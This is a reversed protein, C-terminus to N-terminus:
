YIVDAQNRSKNPNSSSSLRRVAAGTYALKVYVSGQNYQAALLVRCWAPFSVMNDTAEWHSCDLAKPVGSAPFRLTGALLLASANSMTYLSTVERCASGALAPATNM